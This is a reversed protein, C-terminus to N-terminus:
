KLSEERQSEQLDPEMSTDIVYHSFANL